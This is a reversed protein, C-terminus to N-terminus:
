DSRHQAIVARLNPVLQVEIPVATDVALRDMIRRHDPDGVFPGQVIGGSGDLLVYEGPNTTSIYLTRHRM